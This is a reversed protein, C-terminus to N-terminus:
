KVLLCVSKKGEGGGAKRISIHRGKQRGDAGGGGITEVGQWAHRDWRSMQTSRSAKIGM